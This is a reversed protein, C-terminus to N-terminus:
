HIISPNSASVSVSVSECDPWLDLSPPGLLSCTPLLLRDAEMGGLSALAAVVSGPTFRRGIRSDIRRNDHEEDMTDAVPLPAVFSTDRMGPFSGAAPADRKERERQGM